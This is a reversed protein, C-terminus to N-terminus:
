YFDVDKSSILLISNPLVFTGMLMRRLFRCGLDEIFVAICISCAKQQFM